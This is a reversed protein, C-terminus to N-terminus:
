VDFDNPKASDSMITREQPLPNSYEIGLSDNRESIEKALVELDFGEKRIRADYYLLNVLIADISLTLISLIGSVAVYIGSYFM